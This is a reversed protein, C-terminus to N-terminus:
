ALKLPHNRSSSERSRMSPASRVKLPAAWPSLAKPARLPRGQHGSCRARREARAPTGTSPCSSFSGGADAPPSDETGGAADDALEADMVGVIRAQDAFAGSKKLLAPGSLRLMAPRITKTPM